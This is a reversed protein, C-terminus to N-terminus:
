NQNEGHHNGRKRNLIVTLCKIKNCKAREYRFGLAYVPNLKQNNITVILYSM